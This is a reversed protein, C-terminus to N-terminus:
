SAGVHLLVAGGGILEFRYRVGLGALVRCWRPLDSRDRIVVTESSLSKGM